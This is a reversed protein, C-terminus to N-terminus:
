ITYHYLTQFIQIFDICGKLIKQVSVFLTVVVGIDGMVVGVGIVGGVVVPVSLM